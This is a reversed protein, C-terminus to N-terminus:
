LNLFNNLMKEGWEHSKEPHFQTGFINEKQVASVFEYGYHTTALVDEQNNCIVHYGHVFYFQADYPLAELLPSEKKKEISNWGMQPVKHRIDSLAFKVTKADLWGLGEADGEESSLTFLQMGLCIGLIPTKEQLVKKNLIDILNMEKLNMIGKYYHGVGPLIFKDAMKILDIENTVIAEHGARHIKNLVSRINGMNYDIIIITPIKIM